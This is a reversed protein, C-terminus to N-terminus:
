RYAVVPVFTARFFQDLFQDQVDPPYRDPELTAAVCLGDLFMLSMDALVDASTAVTVHGEAIAEEVYKLVEHRWHSYLERQRRTNEEHGMVHAWFSLTAEAGVGLNYPCVTLLSSYLRPAGPPLSEAKQRMRDLVSQSLSAYAFGYLEEKNRFYHNLISPSFGGVRAIERVTTRLPGVEKMTAFTAEAVELRRKDHDVIKPM